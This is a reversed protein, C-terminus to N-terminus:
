NYLFSVALFSLEPDIRPKDAPPHARLAATCSLFM